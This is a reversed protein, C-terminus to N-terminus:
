RRPQRGKAHSLRRLYSFMAAFALFAFPYIYFGRESAGAVIMVADYAVFALGISLCLIFMATLGPERDETGNHTKM